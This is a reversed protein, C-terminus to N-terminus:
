ETNVFEMTQRSTSTMSPVSYSILNNNVDTNTIVGSRAVAGIKIQRIYGITENNGGDDRMIIIPNWTGTTEGINSALYSFKRQLFGDGRAPSPLPQSIFSTGPSAKFCKNTFLGGGNNPGTFFDYNNYTGPDTGALIPNGGTSNFDGLLNGALIGGDCSNSGHLLLVFGEECSVITIQNSATSGDINGCSGLLTKTGFLSWIGSVTPDGNGTVGTAIAAYLKQDSIAGGTTMLNDTTVVGNGGAVLLLRIGTAGIAVEWYSGPTSATYNTNVSVCNTNAILADYIAKGYEAVHGSAAVGHNFPVTLSWTLAM